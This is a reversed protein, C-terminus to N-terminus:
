AAIGGFAVLGADAFNSSLRRNSDNSHILSASHRDTAMLLGTTATLPVIWRLDSKRLRFPSTWIEKQDKQINYISDSITAPRSATQPHVRFFDDASSILASQGTAVPATTRAFPNESQGFCYGCFLAGIIWPKCALFFRM